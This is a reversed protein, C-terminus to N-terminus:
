LTTVPTGSLVPVCLGQVVFRTADPKDEVDVALIDKLTTDIQEELSDFSPIDTRIGGYWFKDYFHQYLEKKAGATFAKSPTKSFDLNKLVSGDRLKVAYLGCFEVALKIYLGINAPSLSDLDSQSPCSGKLEDYALQISPSLFSVGTLKSLTRMIQDCNKLKISTLNNQVLGVKKAEANSKNKKTEARRESGKYTKTNCSFVVLIAFISLLTKISRGM